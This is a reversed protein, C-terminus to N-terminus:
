SSPRLVTQRTMRALQEIDAHPMDSAKFTVSGMSGKDAWFCIAKPTGTLDEVYRSCQMWGGYAGADATWTDDASTVGPTESLLTHSDRVLAASADHFDGISATVTLESGDGAGGTYYHTFAAEIRGGPAGAAAAGLGEGMDMRTMGRFGYPAVAEYRPYATYEAHTLVVTTVLAGLTVAAGAGILALERRAYRPVASLSSEAPVPGADVAGSAREGGRARAGRLLLRLALLPLDLLLGVAWPIWFPFPGLLHRALLLAAVALSAVFLYKPTRRVLLRLPARGPRALATLTADLVALRRDHPALAAQQRAEKEAAEPSAATTLAQVVDHRQVRAASPGKGAAAALVSTSAAARRLQPSDPALERLRELLAPGRAHRGPRDLADSRLCLEAYGALLDVHDPFTDLARRFVREADDDHDDEDEAMHARALVLLLQPEPGDTELAAEAAKRAEAYRGAAILAAAHACASAADEESHM